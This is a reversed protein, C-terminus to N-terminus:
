NPGAAFQSILTSACTAVEKAPRVLKLSANPAILDNGFVLKASLPSVTVILAAFAESFLLSASRKFVNNPVPTVTTGGTGASGVSAAAYSSALMLGFATLVSSTM